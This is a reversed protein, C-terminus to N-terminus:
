TIRRSPTASDPNKKKEVIMIIQPSESKQPGKKLRANKIM